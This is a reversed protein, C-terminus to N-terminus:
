GVDPSGPYNRHAVGYLTASARKGVALMQMAGRVSFARDDRITLVEGDPHMVLEPVKCGRRTYVKSMVSEPIDSVPAWRGHQKFFYAAPAGAAAEMAARHWAPHSPAGDATSEGGSILWGVRRGSLTSCECAGTAEERRPCGASHLWPRFDVAEIAPEYSVFHTPAPVELALAIRDDALAQTECTVGMWANRPWGHAASWELAVQPRKTLLLWDLWATERILRWLRHRERTMKERIEPNSHVEFVDAMSSCFVALRTGLRNAKRNWQRPADWHVPPFFRRPGGAGWVEHGMRRAWREAYCNSCARSVKTCGWWTNFTYGPLLEDGHWRATWEIRTKSM